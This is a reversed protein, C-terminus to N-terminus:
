SQLTLYLVHAIILPIKVIDVHRRQSHSSHFDRRTLALEHELRALFDTLVLQPCPNGVPRIGRYEAREIRELAYVDCQLNGMLPQDRLFGEVIKGALDTQCGPEIM